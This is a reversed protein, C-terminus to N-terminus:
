ARSLSRRVILKHFPRIVALYVHGLRNHRRILTLVSARTGDQPVPVAGVVIRFDLHRDDFGLVIECASTSIVPFFGVVPTGRPIEGRDRKLGFPRILLNRLSMLQGVWPPMREFTRRAVMEASVPEGAIVKEFCDAWDADPLAPHPLQPTVERVTM